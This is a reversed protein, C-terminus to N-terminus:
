AENERRAPLNRANSYTSARILRYGDAPQKAWAEYVFRFGEPTTAVGVTNLSGDPKKQRNRAIVQRWAYEADAQKLTDLEDVISEAM